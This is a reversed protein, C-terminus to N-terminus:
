ARQRLEYRGAAPRGQVSWRFVATHVIHGDHRRVRGALREGAARVGLLEPGPDALDEDDLTPRLEDDAMDPLEGEGTDPEDSDEPEDDPYPPELELTARLPTGDGAYHTSLLVRSEPDSPGAGVLAAALSRETEHGESGPTAEATLVLAANPGIATLTRSLPADPAASPGETVLALGEIPLDIGPATLSGSARGVWSPREPLEPGDASPEVRLRLATGNADHSVTLAGDHPTPASSPAADIVLDGGVTVLLHSDRGEDDTLCVHVDRDADSVDLTMLSGM